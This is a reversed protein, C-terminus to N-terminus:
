GTKRHEQDCRITQLLRWVHQLTYIWLHRTNNLKEYREERKAQCRHCLHLVLLSCFLDCLISSLQMCAVWLWLYSLVLRLQLMYRHSLWFSAYQLMQSHQNPDDRTIYSIKGVVCWEWSLKPIDHMCNSTSQIMTWQVYINTGAQSNLAADMKPSAIASMSVLRYETNFVIHTDMQLMEFATGSDSLARNVVPLRAIISFLLFLHWSDKYMKKYIVLWQMNKLSSHYFLVVITSASSSRLLWIGTYIICALHPLPQMKRTWKSIYQVVVTRHLAAFKTELRSCENYFAHPQESIWSGRTIKWITCFKWLLSLSPWVCFSIFDILTLFHNRWFKEFVHASYTLLPNNNHRWKRTSVLTLQLM